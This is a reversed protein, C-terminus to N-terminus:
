KLLKNFIGEIKAKMICEVLIFDELTDIEFSKWKPLDYGLTHNNIYFTKQEKFIQTNAIYFSGEPYYLKNLDQRRVVNDADLFSTIINEKNKYFLYTPHASESEVISVCTYANKVSIFRELANDIDETDRLPSTPELLVILDYEKGLQAQFDIAHIIAEASKATDNALHEPRLFPVNAGYNKAMVAIQVSDTSVILDTCYKSNLGCEISYAILPKGNLLKINKNPLGKSGGRALIIFLAKM